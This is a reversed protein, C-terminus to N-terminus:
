ASLAKLKEKIDQLQSEIDEDHYKKPKVTKEERHKEYHVRPLAKQLKRIGLMVDRIEKQLSNKIKLESMRLGHYRKTIKMIELLTMESSLINKKSDVSEEYELRVHILDENM